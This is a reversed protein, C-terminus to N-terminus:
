AYSPAAPLMSTIKLFQLPHATGFYYRFEAEGSSHVWSRLKTVLTSDDIGPLDPPAVSALHTAVAALAVFLAIRFIGPMLGGNTQRGGGRNPNPATETVRWRM